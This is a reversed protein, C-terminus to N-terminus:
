KIEFLILADCGHHPLFFSSSSFFFSFLIPLFIVSNFTWSLVHLSYSTDTSTRLYTMGSTDMPSLLEAARPGAGLTRLSSSWGRATRTRYLWQMVQRNIGGM